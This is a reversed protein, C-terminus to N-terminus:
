LREFPLGWPPADIVERYECFFLDTSTIKIEPFLGWVWPGSEKNPHIKRVQYDLPLMDGLKLEKFNM